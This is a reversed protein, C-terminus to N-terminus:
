TSSRLCLILSVMRLNKIKRRNLIKIAVKSGTYMHEAVLSHTFIAALLYILISWVSFYLGKVKGFSGVGLTKGLKYNGISLLSTSAPIPTTSSMKLSSPNSNPVSNNSMKLNSPNGNPVSNNSMRLNNPNSNPTSGYSSSYSSSYSTSYSSAGGGVSNNYSSSYNNNYNNNINM